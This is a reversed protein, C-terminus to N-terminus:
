VMEHVPSPVLGPARGAQPCRFSVSLTMEHMNFEERLRAMSSTM